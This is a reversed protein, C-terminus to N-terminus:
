SAAMAVVQAEEAPEPQADKTDAEEEKVTGPEPDPQAPPEAVENTPSAVVQAEKAEAPQAKAPEPQADKTEDVGVEDEVTAPELDPQAPPEADTANDTVSSPEVKEAAAATTAAAPLERPTEMPEDKCTQAQPTSSKRSDVPEQTKNGGSSANANNSTSHADSSVLSKQAAGSVVGLTEALTGSDNFYVMAEFDGIFTLSGDIQKLFVQPYQARIGSLDFLANRREKQNPDSGDVEEIEHKPLGLGDIITRIRDMQQAKASTLSSVLVVLTKGDLTADNDILIKTRQREAEAKKREEEERALREAEAKKREQEERALREKEAARLKMEEARRAEESAMREAEQRKEEMERQKQEEALRKRNAAALRQAEIEAEQRERDAKAAENAAEDIQLSGILTRNTFSYRTPKHAGGAALLSSQLYKTDLDDLDDGSCQVSLACSPFMNRLDGMWSSMRGKVMVSVSDGIWTVQIYKRRVSVVSGREDIASCLFVGVCLSTPDAAKLVEIVSERGGKGAQLLTMTPQKKPNDVRFM